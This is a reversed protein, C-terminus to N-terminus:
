PRVVFVGLCWSKSLSPQEDQEHNVPFVGSGGSDKAIKSFRVKWLSEISTELDQALPSGFDM